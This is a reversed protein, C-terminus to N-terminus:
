TVLHIRNHLHQQRIITNRSRCNVWVCVWFHETKTQPAHLPVEVGERALVIVLSFIMSRSLDTKSLLALLM